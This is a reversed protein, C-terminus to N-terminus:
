YGRESFEEGELQQLVCSFFRRVFIAPIMPSFVDKDSRLWGKLMSCLRDATEIAKRVIM